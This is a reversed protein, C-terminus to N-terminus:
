KHWPQCKPSITERVSFLPLLSGEQLGMWSASHEVVWSLGIVYTCTEWEVSSSTSARLKHKLDHPQHNSDAEDWLGNETWWSLHKSRVTKISVNDPSPTWLPEMNTIIFNPLPSWLGGPLFIGAESVLAKELLSLTKLIKLVGHWVILTSVPTSDLKIKIWDSRRRSPPGGHKENEMPEVKWNELVM